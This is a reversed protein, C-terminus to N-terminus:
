RLPALRPLFKELLLQRHARAMEGSRRLPRDDRGARAHEAGDHIGPTYRPLFPLSRRGHRSVPVVAGPMHRYRRPWGLHRWSKQNSSETVPRLAVSLVSLVRKYVYDWANMLHTEGSKPDEVEVSQRGVEAKIQRLFLAYLGEIQKPLETLELLGHLAAPDQDQHAFMQDLGRALADLYGLNGDAKAAARAAFEEGTRGTASLTATVGKIKLIGKVYTRLDNQVRADGADITMEKLYVKQKLRFANLADDAARSTLIFRVNDPLQPCNALLSLVSEEPNHYQLEDLADVLIVLREKPRTKRMVLAPDILAQFLLDNLPVDRVDEILEGVRLGVLRARNHMVKQRIRVVVQRFPSAFLKEVEVGIVEAKDSMMGIRQEVIIKLQERDFLAPHLAALQYGIRLLFSKAGADGLPTRQDRRIFYRPWHPHDHALQAVFGSKGAGPEATLLLFRCEPDSTKEEADVTLWDRRM